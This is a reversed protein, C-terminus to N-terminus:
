KRRIKLFEDFTLHAYNKRYETFLAIEDDVAKSASKRLRKVLTLHRELADRGAQSQEVLPRMMRLYEAQMLNTIESQSAEFEENTAIYNFEQESLGEMIASIEDWIPSASKPATPQQQPPEANLQQRMQELKARKANIEQQLTDIEQTPLEYSRGGLLPDFMATNNQTM